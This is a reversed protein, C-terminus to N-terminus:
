KYNLLREYEKRCEQVREKIKEIVEEDRQIVYRKVRREKPIHDFTHNRTVFDIIEEDEDGNWYSNQRYHEKRIEDQLMDFPTNVLCYVVEAKEHGTLLMYGQVQYYYDKNPLSDKFFPFTNGNWSTKIEILLQDTCIDTHGTLWENSFSEQEDKLIVEDTLGWNLVENALKISTKEERTGKDTYRSWFEKKIGLENEKFLDEIYTKCTESLGGGSRPSTMIKGLASCRIKLENAKMKNQNLHKTITIKQM